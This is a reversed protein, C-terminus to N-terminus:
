GIARHLADKLDELERHYKKIYDDRDRLYERIRTTVIMIIHSEPDVKLSSIASWTPIIANAASGETLSKKLVYSIRLRERDGETELLELEAFQDGVSKKLSDFADDV